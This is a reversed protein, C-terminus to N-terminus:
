RKVLGRMALASNYPITRVAVVNHPWGPAGGHPPNLRVTCSRRAADVLVIQARGCAALRAIHHTNIMVTPM